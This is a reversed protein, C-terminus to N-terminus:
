INALSINSVGSRAGIVVNSMGVLVGSVSTAVKVGYGTSNVYETNLTFVNGNGWGTAAFSDTFGHRVTNRGTNATVTWGNGKVDVWSQAGTGDMGTGDFVNGSITGGTTGEKVDVEEAGVGPGIQNNLVVNHDSADPNCATYTCWNNVASGVYIGEGYEHDVLGTDYIRSNSVVTDTTLRRLHIGEQGTGHVTVQDLVSHSSNDLLVGKQGDTVTIGRVQTYPSNKIYLVYGSATTGGDLVASADGCIVVPSSATGPVVSVFNGSYVGSALQIVDGARAGSLAKKLTAADHVPVARTYVTPCNASVADANAGSAVAVASAALGAGIALATVRRTLKM